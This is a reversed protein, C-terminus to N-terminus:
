ETRRIPNKTESRHEETGKTTFTKKYGCLFVSSFEVRERMSRRKWRRASSSAKRLARHGGTGNFVNMRYRTTSRSKLRRDSIRSTQTSGPKRQRVRQSAFQSILAPSRSVM